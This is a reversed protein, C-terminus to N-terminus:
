VHESTGTSVIAGRQPSVGAQFVTVSGELAGEEGLKVILFSVFNAGVEPDDAISQVSDIDRSSPTLSFSPHSHWEGLYNFRRYNHGTRDFFRTLAQLVARLSRVFTAVTGGGHDVTFDVVRFRGPELCEGMLIGGIERSGGRSLEKRLRAQIDTPLEIM